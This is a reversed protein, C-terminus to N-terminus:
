ACSVHFEKPSYTASLRDLEGLVMECLANLKERVTVTLELSLAEIDEPEVGLIVTEPTKELAQCLTLAELLDVQHISNKALIRKPIEEGELRYLTGPQGGNRIADVIGRNREPDTNYDDANVILYRSM